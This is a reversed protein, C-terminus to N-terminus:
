TPAWRRSRRAATPRPDARRLASRAEDLRSERARCTATSSTTPPRRTRSSTPFSRRADLLRELLDVANAEFASRSRKRRARRRSRGTSRRTWATSGSRRPLADRPAKRDTGRRGRRRPRDRRVDHRRAAAGRGDRRARGHGRPPGCALRGGVRPRAARGRRVDRVDGAPNGPHRHLDVIGRDDTRVDDSRAGRASSIREVHGMEARPELERDPRAPRGCAHPLGRGAQRVPRAPDRRRRPAPARPPHGRSCEPNRAAKGSGGYVVLDERREAVEPDLNNLLM